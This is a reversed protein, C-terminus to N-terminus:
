NHRLFIEDENEPIPTQRSRAGKFATHVTRKEPESFNVKPIKETERTFTM